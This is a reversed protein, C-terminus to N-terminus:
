ISKNPLSGRQSQGGLENSYALEIAQRIDRQSVKRGCHAVGRSIAKQAAEKTCIKRLSLAARFTYRHVGGGTRPCAGMEEAIHDAFQAIWDPDITSIREVM